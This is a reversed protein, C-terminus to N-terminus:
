GIVGESVTKRKALKAAFSTKRKVVLTQDYKERSPM